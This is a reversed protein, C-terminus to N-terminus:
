KPKMKSRTRRMKDKGQNTRREQEMVRQIKEKEELKQNIDKGKKM